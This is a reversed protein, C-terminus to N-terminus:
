VVTRNQSLPVFGHVRSILSLASSTPNICPVFTHGSECAIIDNSGSPSVNPPTCSSLRLNQNLFSFTGAPTTDDAEVRGQLLLGRFAVGAAEVTVTNYHLTCVYFVM